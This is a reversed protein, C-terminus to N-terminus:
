SMAERCLGINRVVRKTDPHDDGHKTKKITLASTYYELAKDYDGKARYVIAM